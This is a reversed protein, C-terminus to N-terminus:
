GAYWGSEVATLRFDVLEDGLAGELQRAVFGVRVRCTAVYGERDGLTGGGVCVYLRGDNARGGLAVGAARIVFHRVGM